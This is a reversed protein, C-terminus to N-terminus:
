LELQQKLKDHNPRPDKVFVPNKKKQPATQNIHQMYKKLQQEAYAQDAPHLLCACCKHEPCHVMWVATLASPMTCDINFGEKEQMPLYYAPAGYVLKHSGDSHELARYWKCVLFAKEEELHVKFVAREKKNVFWSM